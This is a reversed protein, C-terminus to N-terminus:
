SKIHKIMGNLHGPNCLKEGTVDIGIEEQLRKALREAQAKNRVSHNKNFIMVTGIYVRIWGNESRLRVEVMAVVM